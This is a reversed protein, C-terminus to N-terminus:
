LREQQYEELDSELKKFSFLLTHGKNNPIKYCSIARDNVWRRITDQSKGFYQAVQEIGVIPSQIASIKQLEKRIVAIEENLTALELSSNQCSGEAHKEQQAM